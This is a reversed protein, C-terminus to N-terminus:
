KTTFLRRVSPAILALAAALVTVYLIKTALNEAGLSHALLDGSLVLAPAWIMASLVNAIYFRGTPMRLMGATLPIVARLPGFFRGIFVSSTGYQEFFTIGRELPERHRRFPWIDSLLPGFKQGLWFSIADGLVAGVIGATVPLFPELIGAEILAGSAILITTGPFLLSLFAFSEGFAVLGVVLAAWEPHDKIFVIVQSALHDM